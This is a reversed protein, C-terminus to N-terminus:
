EKNRQVYYVKEEQKEKKEEDEIILIYIDRIRIFVRKQGGEELIGWYECILIYSFFRDWRVWGKGRRQGIQQLVLINMELM